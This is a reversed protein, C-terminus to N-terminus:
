QTDTSRIPNSSWSMQRAVLREVMPLVPEYLVFELTYEQDVM